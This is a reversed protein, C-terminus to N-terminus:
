RGLAKAFAAALGAGDLAQPGGIRIDTKRLGARAVAAVWDGLSQHSMWSMAAEAPAPYSLVGTRLGEVSWPALLNGLYVTPRLV